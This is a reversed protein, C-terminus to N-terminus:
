RRTGGQESGEGAAQSSRVENNNVNAIQQQLEALEQELEEARQQTRLGPRRTNIM